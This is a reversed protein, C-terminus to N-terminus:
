HNSVSQRDPEWELARLLQENLAVYGAENIHLYDLHYAPLLDGQSDALAVATDLVIVKEGALSEIFTNVETVATEVDRAAGTMRDGWSPRGLPFITTLVVTMEAEQAESVIQGISEKTNAVIQAQAEPFLAILRLDNIGVQVVVVDACLPVVHEAFRGTAQVASQSEIGRNFCQWQECLSPFPWHAARSDGFFVLGPKETTALDSEVVSPFAALGYPDLITAGFFREFLRLQRYTRYHWLLSALLLCALLVFPLSPRVSGGM